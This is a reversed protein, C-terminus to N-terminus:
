LLKLKGNEDFEVNWETKPLLSQLKSIVRAKYEDRNVSGQGYTEKELIEIAKEITFLKDKALEKHANFGDKYFEKYVDKFIYDANEERVENTAEDAMTQVNYGNIVEEVESLFLPKINYFCLSPVIEEEKSIIFGVNELPLTSHTIKKAGGIKAIAELQEKDTYAIANVGNSKIIRTAVHYDGEKIESDDVIIYHTESIKILKNM